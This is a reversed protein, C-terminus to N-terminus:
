ADANPPLVRGGEKNAPLEHPLFFYYFGLWLSRSFRYFVIPFLAAAAIGLGVAWDGSLVDFMWLLAIPTLVGCVTVGYNLSMAGLFFGDGRDFTLGCGSCAKELTFGKRFLSRAGCNPCQLLVSRGLINPPKIRM